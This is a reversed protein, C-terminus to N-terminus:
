YNKLRFFLRERHGSKWKWKSLDLCSTFFSELQKGSDSIVSSFYRAKEPMYQDYAIIDASSVIGVLPSKM